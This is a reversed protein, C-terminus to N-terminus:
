GWIEDNRRRRRRRKRRKRRKRRTEAGTGKWEMRWVRWGGRPWAMWRCMNRWLGRLFPSSRPLVTPLPSPQPGCPKKTRTRPLSLPFFPPPFFFFPPPSPPVKAFRTVEPKCLFPPLSPPPLVALSSSLSPTMITRSRIQQKEKVTQLSRPVPLVVSARPNMWAAVAPASAPLPSPPFSTITV